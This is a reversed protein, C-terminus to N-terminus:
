NCYYSNATYTFFGTSDSGSTGSPIYCNTQATSGAASTGTMGAVTLCRSCGSTGNSSSGYYGAACQYVITEVCDAGSCSRNTKKQYGTNGATWITDSKCTSTDCAQICGDVGDAYMDTDIVYGTKCRVCSGVLYRCNDIWVSVSKTQECDENTFDEPFFDCEEEDDRGAMGTVPTLAMFLACFLLLFRRM